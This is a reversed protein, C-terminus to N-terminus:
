PVSVWPLMQVNMLGGKPREPFGAPVHALCTASLLGGISHSGIPVEPDFEVGDDFLLHGPVFCDRQIDGPIPARAQAGLFRAPRGQCGLLYPWVFVSFTVLASMPNGPLCFAVQRGKHAFAFPKGPKVAVKEFEFAFGLACLADKAFDREGVSAGGCTLLTECDEALARLAATTRALDDDVTAVRCEFGARALVSRLAWSNSEYLQGPLLEQGLEVLENGTVLIGVKPTSRVKLHKRGFSAALSVVTPTVVRGRLSVTQGKRVEAGKLRVGDGAVVESTLTLDHGTRETDEVMVVCQTGEPLLSGTGVQIAEGPGVSASPSASGAFQSGKVKLVSGAPLPASLAFGDVASNDFLPIDFPVTFDEAVTLGLADALDVEVAPWLAIRANIKALAEDYSIM